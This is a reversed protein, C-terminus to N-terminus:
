FMERFQKLYRTWHRPVARPRLHEAVAIREVMVNAFAKPIDQFPAAGDRVLNHEIGQVVWANAKRFPLQTVDSIEQRM